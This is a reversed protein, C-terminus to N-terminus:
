ERDVLPRCMKEREALDHESFREGVEDFWGTASWRFFDQASLLPCFFL